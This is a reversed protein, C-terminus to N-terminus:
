RGILGARDLFTSEATEQPWVRILDKPQPGKGGRSVQYSRIAHPLFRRVECAFAEEDAAKVARKDDNNPLTLLLRSELARTFAREIRRYDPLVGKLPKPIDGLYAESADHFLALRNRHPDGSELSVINQVACSHQAVSYCRIAGGFRITNALGRAVEEVLDTTSIARSTFSSEPDTLNVSRGLATTLYRM